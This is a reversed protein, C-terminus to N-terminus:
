DDQGTNKAKIQKIAILKQLFRLQDAFYASKEPYKLSLKSIIEFAREYRRQKVYMKALSEMLSPEEHGEDHAQGEGNDVVADAPLQAEEQEEVVAPAPDELPYDPIAASASAQLYDAAVPNFILRELLADDAESGKCYTDLFAEITEVTDKTKKSPAEPYFDAWNCGSLDALDSMATRDACALMVKAQMNKIKEADADDRHSRLYMAVPFVFTPHRSILEDLWVTDIDAGRDALMESIKSELATM